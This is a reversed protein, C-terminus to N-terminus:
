KDGFPYLESIPGLKYDLADLRTTGFWPGPADVILITKAYGTEDFGRRFHVRSKVVFVQYNDPEVPGFRLMEPRIIQSYAPTIILLNNRGHEIVAIKEYTWMPGYFILKGKIQVPNGAQPGTFGGVEMDFASGPKANEQELKELAREDRLATYLVGEVQESILQKLIWTADGPRDSYDALVVPTQDNEIAEKTRNVAEEPLPFTGAAFSERVRWIYESMDEAISDALHQDNNTIVNVTTGIDPVDAWPFGYYVNVYTDKERAEWRRAREMIEMSPSQGTWQLVTATVVQPRRTATTAVYDGKMARYLFGACRGGQIFADYHPYRKTVFTADAWKLFEEDENGHLDFTAAIPVQDGVVMRIRKAIEAEPRPIDRVALAGHLDLYVGQVPMKAKLDEIIIEMFHEFSERSNWSRSSGGFVGDPSNIGLLEMEDFLKATHAFGKIYADAELVEEGSLYDRYITWDAIETDGGPCFTCTEHQYRIVAVRLKKSEERPNCCSQILLLCSLTLM